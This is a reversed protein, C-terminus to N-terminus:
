VFLAMKKCNIDKFCLNMTQLARFLPSVFIIDFPQLELIIKNLEIAQNIGNNTLRYFSYFYECDLFKINKSVNIIKDLYYLNVMLMIINEKKVIIYLSVM